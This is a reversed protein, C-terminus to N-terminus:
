REREPLLAVVPEPRVSRAVVSSQSVAAAPMTWNGTADMPTLLADLRVLVERASPREGPDDARLDRVLKELPSVALRAAPLGSRNSPNTM